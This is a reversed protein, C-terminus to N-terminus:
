GDGFPISIILPPYSYKSIMQCYNCRLEVSCLFDFFIELRINAMEVEFIAQFKVIRDVFYGCSLRRTLSTQYEIM